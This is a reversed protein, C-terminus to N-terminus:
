TFRFAAGPGDVCVDLLSDYTIFPIGSIKVFATFSSAKRGPNYSDGHQIHSFLLNIINYKGLVQCLALYIQSSSVM